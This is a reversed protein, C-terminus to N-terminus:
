LYYRIHALDHFFHYIFRGRRLFYRGLLHCMILKLQTLYARARDTKGLTPDISLRPCRHLVSKELDYGIESMQEPRVFICQPSVHRTRVGHIERSQINVDIALQIPYAHRLLKHMADATITYGVTGGLRLASEVIVFNGHESIVKDAPRAAGPRRLIFRLFKILRWMKTSSIHLPYFLRTTGNWGSQEIVNLVATFHPSIYADDELIAVQQYGCALIHRYLRLTTETLAIEGSNLSRGASLRAWVESYVRKGDPTCIANPDQGRGDIADWWTFALGAEDMRKQM